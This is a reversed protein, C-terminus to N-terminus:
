GTQMHEPAMLDGPQKKQLPLFVFYAWDTAIGGM